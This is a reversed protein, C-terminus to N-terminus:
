KKKKKLQLCDKLSLQQDLCYIEKPFGSKRHQLGNGTPNSPFLRNGGATHRLLHYDATFFNPEIPEPSGQSLQFLSAFACLKCESAFLMLGRHWRKWKGIDRCLFHLARHKEIGRLYSFVCRRDELIIYLNSAPLNYHFCTLCNGAWMSFFLRYNVVNHSCFLFPYFFLPMPRPFWFTIKILDQLFLSWNNLVVIYKTCIM